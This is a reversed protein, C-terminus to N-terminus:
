YLEERIIPLEIELVQKDSVFKAKGMKENVPYPLIFDLYYQTSSMIIQQKMVELNIESLKTDPLKIKVLLGQCKTSSPDIGSWGGFVDETGVIQKYLVDVDPRQRNDMKPRNQVQIEDIDWIDNKDAVKKKPKEQQQEVKQEQDKQGLKVQIQAYPKAVEKKQGNSGIDSPAFISGKNPNNNINSFSSEEEETQILSALAQIDSINM